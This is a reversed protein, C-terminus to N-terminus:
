LGLAQNRFKTLLHAILDADEPGQCVCVMAPDHSGNDYLVVWRGDVEKPFCRPQPAQYPTM